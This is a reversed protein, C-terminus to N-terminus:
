EGSGSPNPGFNSGVTGTFTCTKGASNTWRATASAGVALCSVARKELLEPTPSAAVLGAYAFFLAASLLM